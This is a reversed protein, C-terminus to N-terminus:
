PTTEKIMSPSSLDFSLNDLSSIFLPDKWPFGRQTPSIKTGEPKLIISQLLPYHIHDSDKDGIMLCQAISLQHDKVAQIVMGPNPKRCLSEKKFDGKGAEGHFPSYYIDHLKIGQEHFLFLLKKHVLHLQKPTISGRAVGSQNSIVILLYNKEQMMKLFKFMAPIPQLQEPDSLYPIDHVLINDRDLLLAKKTFLFNKYNIPRHGHFSCPLPYYHFHQKVGEQISPCITTIGTLSFREVEHSLISPCDEDRRPPHPQHRYHHNYDVWHISQSTKSSIRLLYDLDFFSPKFFPLVITRKHIFHLDSLTQEHIISIPYNTTLITVLQTQIWLTIQKQAQTHFPPLFLLRLHTPALPHNKLSIFFHNWFLLLKKEIFLHYSTTSSPPNCSTELGQGVYSEGVILILDM